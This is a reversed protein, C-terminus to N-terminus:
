QRSENCHLWKNEGTVRDLYLNVLIEGLFRDIGGKSEIDNWFFEETAEEIWNKNKFYELAQEFTM